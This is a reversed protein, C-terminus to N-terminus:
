PSEEKGEVPTFEDFKVQLWDAFAAVIAEGVFELSSLLLGFRGALFEALAFLSSLCFLMM